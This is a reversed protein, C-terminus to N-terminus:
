NGTRDLKYYNYVGNQEDWGWAEVDLTEPFEDSSFFLSLMVNGGLEKGENSGTFDIVARRSQPQRPDKIKEDIVFIRRKTPDPQILREVEALKVVDAHQALVLRFVPDQLKGKVDAALEDVPAGDSAQFKLDAAQARGDHGAAALCALVAALLGFRNKNIAKEATNKCARDLATMCDANADARQRHAGM